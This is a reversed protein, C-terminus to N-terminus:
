STARRESGESGSAEPERVIQLYAYLALLVAEEEIEEDASAREDLADILRLAAQATLSCWGSATRHALRHVTQVCRGLEGHAYQRRLRRAAARARVPSLHIAASEAIQNTVRRIGRGRHQRLHERRMEHPQGGTQEIGRRHARRTHEVIGHLEEEGRVDDNLVTRLPGDLEDQRHDPVVQKMSEVHRERQRPSLPRDLPILTPFVRLPNTRLLRQIRPLALEAREDPIRQYFLQISAIRLLGILGILFHLPTLVTGCFLALYEGGFLIPSWADLAGYILRGCFLGLATALSIVTTVQAYYMSRHEQPAVNMNLTHQGLLLGAAIFGFFLRAGILVALQIPRNGAPLFWWYLIGIGSLVATVHLVTRYGVRDGIRRWLFYSPAQALTMVGVLGIIAASSLGLTRDLYAVVFVAALGNAFMRLSRYLMLSRFGAHRWPKALLPWLRTREVVADMPRDPVFAHILLDLEGLIFVGGFVLVYGWPESKGYHDIILAGLFPVVSALLTNMALRAAYYRGRASEPVIDTVWSLWASVGLNTVGVRFLLAAVLYVLRVQLDKQGTVFPVLLMALTALRSVAFCTLSLLKRRRLRETIVASVLHVVGALPIISIALQWDAPDIRLCRTAFLVLPPGKTLNVYLAGLVGACIVLRIDRRTRADM